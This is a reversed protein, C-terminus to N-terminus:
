GDLSVDMGIVPGFLRADCARSRVWAVKGPCTMGGGAVIALARVETITCDELPDGSAALMVACCGVLASMIIAIPCANGLM